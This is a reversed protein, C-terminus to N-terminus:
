LSGKFYGHVRLGGPRGFSGSSQGPELAEIFWLGRAVDQYRSAAFGAFRYKAVRGRVARKAPILALV